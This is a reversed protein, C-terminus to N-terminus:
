ERQNIGRMITFARRFRLSVTGTVEDALPARRSHCTGEITEDSRNTCFYAALVALDTCARVCELSKGGWPGQDVIRSGGMVIGHCRLM